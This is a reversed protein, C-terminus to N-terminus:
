YPHNTTVESAPFNERCFNLMRYIGIPHTSHINIHPIYKGNNKMWILIDLGNEEQGLDYDLSIYEFDGTTLRFTADRYSRCCVFGEKPFPRIDDVYMKM